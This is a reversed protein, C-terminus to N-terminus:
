PISLLSQIMTSLPQLKAIELHEGEAVSSIFGLLTAKKAAEELLVAVCGIRDEWLEPPMKMKEEGPLVPRCELQGLNVIVLDAVDGLTQMIPDWSESAELDTGIGMTQLYINTAHVALTNLYVQRAQQPETQRQRFREADRYAQPTLEVTLSDITKSM